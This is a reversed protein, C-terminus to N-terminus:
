DPKSYLGDQVLLVVHFRARSMGIYLLDDLSVKLYDEAFKKSKNNIDTIIVVDSELGKFKM